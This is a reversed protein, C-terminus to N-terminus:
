KIILIIFKLMTKLYKLIMSSVDEPFNKKEENGIKIVYKPKKTEKDEIVKVPWNKIDEKFFKNSFKQGILRKSQFMTSEPYDKFNNKAAIGVVHNNDMFCIMSPIIFKGQQNDPIMETKGNIYIAACSNTTGLDIGIIPEEKDM